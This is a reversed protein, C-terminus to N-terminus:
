KKIIDGIQKVSIIEIDDMNYIENLEEKLSDKNMYFVDDGKFEIEFKGNWNEM